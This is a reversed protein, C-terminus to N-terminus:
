GERDGLSHRADLRNMIAAYVAVILVYALPAGQAAMWVSFPWGFFVFNLDRAFYSLVFSVVFWVALLVGTLRLNYRWHRKHADSPPM